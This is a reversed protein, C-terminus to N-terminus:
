AGNQAPTRVNEPICYGTRDGREEYTLLGRRRLAALKIAAQEPIVGMLSAVETATIPRTGHRSNLAEDWLMSVFALTARQALPIQDERLVTLVHIRGPAPTLFCMETTPPAPAADHPDM